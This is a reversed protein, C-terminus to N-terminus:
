FYYLDSDYNFEKVNNSMYPHFFTNAFITEYKNFLDECDGCLLYHKEGDQVVKNPNHISRLAGISTKKLYKFM